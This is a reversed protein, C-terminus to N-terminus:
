KKEKKSELQKEIRLVTENLKNLGTEIRLAWIIVIVLIFLTIIAEM